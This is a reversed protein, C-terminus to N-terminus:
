VSHLLLGGQDFQMWCGPTPKFDGRGDVQIATVELWKLSGQSPTDLTHVAGRLISGNRPWDPKSGKLQHQFTTRPADRWSLGSCDGEYKIVFDELEGSDPTQQQQQEAKGQKSESSGM